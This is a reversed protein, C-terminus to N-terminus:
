IEFEEGFKIDPKLDWYWKEGVYVKRSGLEKMRARLRDLVGRFFDDKDYLLVAEETMDFYFPRTYRAEWRTKAILSFGHYEGDEWRQPIEREVKSGLKLVMESRALRDPPLEEFVLLLDIDSDPRYKGRAVSGYLVISVLNDGFTEKARQVFREILSQVLNATM